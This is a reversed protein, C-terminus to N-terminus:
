FDYRLSVSYNRPDGYRAGGLYLGSYYTKDFINNAHASLVLGDAFRYSALLDAVLFSGQEYDGGGLVSVNEVSSSGQWKLNGGVTLASWSGPLQYTSFLKFTDRPVNPVLRAGSEEEGAAYAYGGAVQWGPMLEGSIELEVGEVEAGDAARYAVSGDPAYIGAGLAVAYNDQEMQFLAASANFRGDMMEAKLGLEYNNGELPDLRGGDIDKYSQPKFVSTYSAYASLERTLDVVVGAYPTFVGNEEGLPTTSKGSTADSYWESEEWDSVRAGLIVSIAATARLRVVGSLASEKIEGGYRSGDPGLYPQPWKGTAYFEFADAVAARYPGSAWWGPHGDGEDSYEAHTATLVLDHQQGLLKFTGNLSASLADIQLDGAWRSSYMTGGSGDRNLANTYIYGISEDYGGEKHEASFGLSWAESLSHELAAFVNISDRSFTSWDAGSNTSRSLHTKTGDSFLLPVGGRSAGNNEFDQYEVGITLLTSETLDAEVVGYVVQREAHERDVFSDNEQYAAAMRGRLRGSDVLAGGADAELRYSNWSGVKATVSGAYERTPRKRILNVTASPTGIGTMLGSAGRIVEIRDYAVMDATEEAFGYISTPRPVGDVMYNDIAFGRAVYQTGDSGLASSNSVSIGVLQQMVDAISTLDQDQMRDHTMVSISQPTERPSLSLGTSAKTVGTTYSGSGETSDSMGAAKVKVPALTKDQPAVLIAGGGVQGALGSGELLRDLAQQATLKGALAPASRGAVLAPDLSLTLGAQRALANLASTLSGAPLEYHQETPAVAAAQALVSSPLGALGICLALALRQPKHASPRRAARNPVFDTPCFLRKPM